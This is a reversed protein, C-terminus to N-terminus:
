IAFVPPPAGALGDEQIGQAAEAEGGVELDEVDAAAIGDGEGGEGLEAGDPPDLNVLGEEIRRSGVAIPDGSPGQAVGEVVPGLPGEVQDGGEVDDLVDLVVTAGDGGHGAHEPGIAPHDQGDRRELEEPVVVVVDVVVNTAIGHAPQPGHELPLAQVDELEAVGEA